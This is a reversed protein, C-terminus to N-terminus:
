DILDFPKGLVDTRQRLHFAPRGIGHVIKQQGQGFYALSIIKHRTVFATKEDEVTVFGRPDNGSAIKGSNNLNRGSFSYHFMFPYRISSHKKQKDIM